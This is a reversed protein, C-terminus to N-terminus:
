ALARGAPRASQGSMDTDNGSTAMAARNQMARNWRNRRYRGVLVLIAPWFMTAIFDTSTDSWNWSGSYLRDMMENFLEAVLLVGLALASARRTRLFLQTLVYIGLGFHVHLLKDSMGSAAIITEILSHYAAFM